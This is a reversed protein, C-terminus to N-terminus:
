YSSSAIEGENMSDKSTSPTQKSKTPVQAAPASKSVPSSTTPQYFPQSLAVSVLQDLPSIQVTQEESSAADVSPSASTTPVTGFPFISRIDVSIERVAPIGDVASM